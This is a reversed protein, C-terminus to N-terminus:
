NGDKHQKPYWAPTCPMFMMTKTKTLWFYKKGPKILIQDGDNFEYKMEEIGHLSKDIVPYEYATMTKSVIIKKVKSKRSINMM